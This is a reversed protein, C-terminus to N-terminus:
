KRKLSVGYGLAKRAEDLNNITEIVSNMKGEKALDKYKIYFHLVSHPGLQVAVQARYRQESISFCSMGAEAFAASIIAKARTFNITTITQQKVIKARREHLWEWLMPEYRSQILSLENEHEESLVGYIWVGNSRKFYKAIEELTLDVCAQLNFNGYRNNLATSIINNETAIKIVEEDSLEYLSKM